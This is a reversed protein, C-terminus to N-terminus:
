RADQEALFKRLLQMSGFLAAFAGGAIWLYWHSEGGDINIYGGYAIAIGAGIMVLFQSYKVEALMRASYEKGSLPVGVQPRRGLERAPADFAWRHLALFIAMEAGAAVLYGAVGTETFGISILMVTAMVLGAAGWSMWTLRRRYQEIFHEMEAEDLPLPAERHARRYVWRGNEFVFQRAFLKVASESQRMSFPKM